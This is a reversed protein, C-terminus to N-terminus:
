DYGDFDAGPAINPYEAQSQGLAILPASAAGIVWAYVLESDMLDIFEHPDNILDMVMPVQRKIYPATWSEELTYRYHVKFHKWKAAIPEADVGIYLYHDRGSTETQGLMFASMDMGDIPRDTPVKDGLGALNALTPYWDLAAVIEETVVGAPIKGPWRIMAPTRYCGEWGGGFTGRWYGGSGIGEGTLHGTGNDSAWVVITDEGLGLEDLADLIQGARYDLEALNKPAAFPSNTADEFDPHVVLPPHVNTFGVYAYFPKGEAHSRRIFDITKEAIKEDMFPRTEMNFEDVEEFPQGKVAAKIKPTPMNPPFMPHSSWAAEDSTESIGWWEDFGQDTPIRGAVNGLHWKGYMATAYGADSFLNGMTYEWPSLGYHGPEGPQPVRFTGCRVPMRGTMVATRTPTCQAETNHNTFRIGESALQDLRPTPNLAGYCSLDGWGTNDVLMFVVNPKNSM